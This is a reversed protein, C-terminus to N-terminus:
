AGRLEAFAGQGAALDSPAGREVVEGRQLVLVEDCRMVETLHHTILILSRDALAALSDRLVAAAEIPDLHETPEDLIVIPHQSLLIRALGLRQRQGGSLFAGGTGVRTERGAPLSDVWEALGARALAEDLETATADRRALRLNESITTDFLHADQTVMGIVTRVEDGALASLPVGNLRLDGATPLFRLLGMALTSKGAGSLGVVALSGQPALTFDVGRVVPEDSGPWTVSVGEASITYPGTPLATPQQPDPCPDSQDVVDFVRAASVRVRAFTLIAAPLVQVAEYAALPMLVVVALLVGSLNGASVAAAGALLSGVVALGQALVGLSSGAGLVLASRRALATNEADAAEIAAVAPQAAQLAILDAASEMTTIVEAALRGKSPAIRREAAGGVLLTVMPVAVGGVLLAVLLVMGAIPLLLWALVVSGLGVLLAALFPLAVRLYLDLASDVDVVLRTLLDGRRWRPLGAPALRELREYIAVRLTALSRFAADHGVLREAYRFVGRGIGFARVGVIAVQLFLIPPQLAARSILYASTAMLGVASGLALAGLLAALSLRPWQPRATEFMRGTPTSRWSTM